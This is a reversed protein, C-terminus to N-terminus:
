SIPSRAWAASTPHAPGTTVTEWVAFPALLLSGLLFEYTVITLGSYRATLRKVTLV